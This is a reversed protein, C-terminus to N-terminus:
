RAPRLGDPDIGLRESTLKVVLDAREEIPLPPVPIPDYGLEEYVAKILRAIRAAEEPTEFRVEDKVYPLQELYFVLDYRRGKPFPILEPPLNYFRLYAIGDYVGRDCFLVPAGRREAEGELKLQLKLVERQFSLPDKLPHFRGEKILITAAEPVTALRRRELERILSTKGSSPGGTIVIKRM